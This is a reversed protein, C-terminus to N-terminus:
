IIKTIHNNDTSLKKRLPIALLRLLYTPTSYKNVIDDCIIDKASFIWNKKNINNQHILIKRLEKLNKDNDITDKFNDFSDVRFEKQIYNMYLLRETEIKYIDVNILYDRYQLWNNRSNNIIM